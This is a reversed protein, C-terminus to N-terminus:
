QYSATGESRFNLSTYGAAGVHLLESQICGINSVYPHLAYVALISKGRDLQATRRVEWTRERANLTLPLKNSTNNSLLVSMAAIAIAVFFLFDRGSRLGGGLATGAPWFSMEPGAMGAHDAGDGTGSRWNRLLNDIGGESAELAGQVFHLRRVENSCFLAAKNSGPACNSARAWGSRM